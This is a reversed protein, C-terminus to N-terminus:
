RPARVKRAIGEVRGGLEPAAFGVAAVAAVRRHGLTRPATTTGVKQRIVDPEAAADPEEAIALSAIAVDGAHEGLAGAVEAGQPRQEVFRAVIAVVAMPVHLARRSVGADAHQPVLAAVVPVVLHDADARRGDAGRVVERDAEVDVLAAVVHIESGAQ